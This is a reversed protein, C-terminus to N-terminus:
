EGAFVLPRLIRSTGIRRALYTLPRNLILWGLLAVAVGIALGGVVDGPYHAGVYVRSFAILVALVTGAIAVRQAAKGAYHAVIWLGAAAAGATVSHDSPFSVDHSRSVLVEVGSLTAYPRARDVAHGVLQNLGLGVVVAGATWVAAAVARPSDEARRAHWWALIMLVAFLGVAYIAVAKMIPHAWATHVAFRNVERFLRTDM